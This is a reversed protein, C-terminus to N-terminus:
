RGEGTVEISGNVTAVRITGNGTGLTGSVSVKSSQIDTMDLGSVFVSGNVTSAELRGSTTDPIALSVNGNVTSLACRGGAAPAADCVIRGNVLSIDCDGELERCEVNGNTSAIRVPGTLDEATILGNVQELSVPIRRPLRVRYFVEYSRGESRNPQRTTLFADPGEQRFDVTLLALGALADSEDDSRVVREGTVVISDADALGAIEIGGSVGKVSLRTTLRADLAYRFSASAEEDQSNVSGPGQISCASFTMILLSFLATLGFPKKRLITQIM